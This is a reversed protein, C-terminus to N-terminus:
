LHLDFNETKCLAWLPTDALPHHLQEAVAIYLLFHIQPSSTQCSAIQTFSSNRHSHVIPSAGKM